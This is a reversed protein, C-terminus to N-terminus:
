VRQPTQDLVELVTTGFYAVLREALVPGLGPVLGSGLYRQMAELTSPRSSTVHSVAFQPGYVPHLTWQGELSVSEGPQVDPLKGVVTVMQTATQVAAVTHGSEPNYFTIRIVEGTLQEPSAAGPRPTAESRPSM